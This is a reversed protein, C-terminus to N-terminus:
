QECNQLSPLGLDLQRCVQNRTLVKKRLQLCGDEQQIRLMVSPISLLTPLERTDRKILASIEDHPGVGMVEDLGLYRGFAREGFVMM